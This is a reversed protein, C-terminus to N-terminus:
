PPSIYERKSFTAKSEPLLQFDSSMCDFLFHLYVPRHHEYRQVHRRDHHFPRHSNGSLGKAPFESPHAPLIRGTRAIKHDRGTRRCIVPLGHLYKSVSFDMFLHLRLSLRDPLYTYVRIMKFCVMGPNGCFRDPVKEQLLRNLSFLQEDALRGTCFEPTTNGPEHIINKM